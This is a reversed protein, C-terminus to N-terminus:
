PSPSTFMDPKQSRVIRTLDQAAQLIFDLIAPDNGEEDLYEGCISAYYLCSDEQTDWDFGPYCSRYFSDRSIDLSRRAADVKDELSKRSHQSGPYFLFEYRSAMLVHDKEVDSLGTFIEPKLYGNM